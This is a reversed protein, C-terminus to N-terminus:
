IPLHTVEYFDMANNTNDDIMENPHDLKLLFFYNPLFSEFAHFLFLVQELEKNTFLKPM